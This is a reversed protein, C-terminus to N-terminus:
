FYEEWAESVPPWDRTLIQGNPLLDLCYFMAVRHCFRWRVRGRRWRWALAEMHAEKYWQAVLSDLLEEDCYFRIPQPSPPAKKWMRLARRGYWELFQEYTYGIGDRAMRVEMASGVEM